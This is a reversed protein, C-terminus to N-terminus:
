DFSYGAFFLKKPENDEYVKIIKAMGRQIDNWFLDNTQVMKLTPKDTKFYRILEERSLLTACGYDPEDSIFMIDLISRTGDPQSLELAKELTEPNLEAGDYEGRDFVDKRLDDLVKQLNEKYDVIYQYSEAGM